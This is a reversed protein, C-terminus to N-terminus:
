QALPKFMALNFQMVGKRSEPFLNLSGEASVSSLNRSSAPSEFKAAFGDEGSAVELTPGQSSTLAFVHSTPNEPLPTM